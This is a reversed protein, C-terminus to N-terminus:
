DQWRSPHDPLPRGDGPATVQHLFWGLSALAEGAGWLWLGAVHVARRMM